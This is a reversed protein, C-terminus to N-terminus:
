IFEIIISVAQINKHQLLNYTNYLKSELIQEIIKELKPGTNENVLSEFQKYLNTDM